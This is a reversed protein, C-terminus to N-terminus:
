RRAQVTIAAGAPDTTVSIIQHVDVGITLTGGREIEFDLDQAAFIVQKDHSTINVGDIQNYKYFTVVASAAHPAGGTIEGTVPNYASGPESYTVPVVLDGLQRFAKSVEAQIMERSIM